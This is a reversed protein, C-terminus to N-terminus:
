SLNGSNLDVAARHCSALHSASRALMGIVILFLLLNRVFLISHSNILTILPFNRFQARDIAHRVRAHALHPKM